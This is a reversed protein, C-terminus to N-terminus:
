FSIRGDRGVATPTSPEQFLTVTLFTEIREGARLVRQNGRASVDALGNTPYGCWPELAFAHVRGWWPFGGTRSFEHWQWVHSFVTADWAVAVGLQHHASYLSYWAVDSPYDSHYLVDSGHADAHAPIISTDFPVGDPGALMPWQGRAGNQSLRNPNDHAAEHAEIQRASTAIRAGHSLFPLGYAIHHGWMIDIAEGAENTFSERLQLVPSSGEIIMDRVIHIPTRIGRVTCRVHVREPTDELVMADWPLLSVEGHQGYAAGRHTNTPGGSPAIEQWGGLYTDMFNGVSGAISGTARAPDHIAVPLRLLPDIDTPKHRLEVIEAGRDLLVTVRIAENELVLTRLGRLMWEDSVRCGHTHISTTGM